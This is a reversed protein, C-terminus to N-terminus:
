ARTFRVLSVADTVDDFVARLPMGLHLGEPIAGAFNSVIMPGEELRVVCVDYPLDDKYGAWYARHFRGWSVLSAKGSVVQWGQDDSLCKPCVPSPPFHMDGCANCRQVSLRHQKAHDWYPKVLPDITPLPKDYTTSNSM